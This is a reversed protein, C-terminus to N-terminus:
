LIYVNYKIKDVSFGAAKIIDLNRLIEHYRGKPHTTRINYLFMSKSPGSGARDKAGSLYTLWACQESTWRLNIALDFKEKRLLKLLKLYNYNEINITKDYFITKPALEVFIGNTLITLNSDPLMDRVCNIAPLGAIIDGLAGWKIILIKKYNKLM